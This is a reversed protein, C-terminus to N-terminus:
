SLVGSIILFVYIEIGAFILVYNLVDLHCCYLIIVVIMAVINLIYGVLQTIFLPFPVERSGLNSYVGQEFLFLFHKLKITKKTALCKAGVCFRIFLLIFALVCLSLILNKVNM